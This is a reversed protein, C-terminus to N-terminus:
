VLAVLNCVKRFQNLKKLQKGNLQLTNRYREITKESSAHILRHVDKHVIVLNNFEDTGGLHRPLKHHCHVQNSTLFEGTVACIGLQMSYRSIRNDAIELNDKGYPIQLMKNIEIAVDASLNQHLKLRGEKTYNCIGQSFNMANRTQIDGLPFLYAGAIKYTRFNNKHLRKYTESPKIPKGYKGFPKLRNYMTKLLRYAIKGFDINIHTAVKFYNKIGLIYANYDMVTHPTPKNQIKRILYRLKELINKMKSDMVHTNAVYKNRKAVAKLSFGLFDSKRKRLNTIASKETSIDLNLQNKLYGNTAHYIKIALKHSNTFIKFDDAYRVIYMQKLNTKKLARIKGCPTYTQKTKLCEWQNAIWWDLDNLVINSLLPSLIGGQPTGKTPVGTGKIPAKLMKSVITLVRKDRIGIGYMQKILKSHSVNDFFGQIDIDVVHHLKVNNVLFQCRAMVHHTSRNPRFGYSHKYFKAECIPELVQKFMQQILRDRMTPIGLPRKKGNPKPIEVRRVTQPKYNELAKRIEEIFEDVNEIKYKDITIGDTGATKSGTNAKINRFALLINNKSIIHEYLRLGKTTNNKSREYLNDFIGQMNYYEAHRLATSM